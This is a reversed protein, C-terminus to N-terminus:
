LGAALTHTRAREATNHLWEPAGRNFEVDRRREYSALRDLASQQRRMARRYGAVYASFLLLAALIGIGAAILLDM